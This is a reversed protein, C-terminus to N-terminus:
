SDSYSINDFNERQSLQRPTLMSERRERAPWDEYTENHEEVHALTPVLLSAFGLADNAAEPDHTMREVADRELWKSKMLDHLEEIFNLLEPRAIYEGNVEENRKTSWRAISISRKKEMEILARDLKNKLNRINDLEGKLEEKSYGEIEKIWDQPKEGYKSKFKALKRYAEDVKNRSSRIKEVEDLFEKMIKNDDILDFTGKKLVSIVTKIANLQEISYNSIAQPARSLRHAVRGRTDRVNLGERGSLVVTGSEPDVNQSNRTGGKKEKKRLNKKYRRTKVCHKKPIKKSIRKKGGKKLTFKGM